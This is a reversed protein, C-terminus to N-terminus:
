APGPGIAVSNDRTSVWLNRCALLTAAVLLGNRLVILTVGIWNSVYVHDFLIPFELFTLLSAAVILLVPIRQSTARVTLCVAGVGVLWVMYQPSIVRSTATFLLTAALGADFMTAPTWVRARVRWWVLWVLAVAAVILAITSVVGVYPGVFEHSGYTLRVQGPWGFHRVLHFIMAGMSEIETGRDRQFVLFALAGPAAVLFAGTVGVATVAAALWTRRTPRGRPTGVLLVAPWVKLSAGLGLLAGSLWGARRAALLGAVAVATVILDYRTYATPGLVAIGVVWVWPGARWGGPRGYTVRLLMTLTAADALVVLTVFATLYDLFPLLAPALMVLAAAPPYQWSVDNAPFSGDRLVQYWGQYIVSVDITVDPGSLPLVRYVMLLLVARTAVWALTV